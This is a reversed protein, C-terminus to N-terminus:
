AAVATARAEQYAAFLAAAAPVLWDDEAMEFGDLPWLTPHDNASLSIELTRVLAKFEARGIKPDSLDWLVNADNLAARDGLEHTEAAWDVFERHCADQTNIVSTRLRIADLKKPIELYPRVVDQLSIANV